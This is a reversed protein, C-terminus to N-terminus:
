TPKVSYNLTRKASGAQVSVRLSLPIGRAAAPWVIFDHFVGKIPWNTLNKNTTGYQAPYTQGTPEAIEVTIKAAAPKGGETVRIRYPWHVGVRPTHTAASLVARLPGAGTGGVRAADAVGPVTSGVVVTAALVVCYRHSMELGGQESVTACMQQRAHSVLEVHSGTLRNRRHTKRTTQRRLLRGRRPTTRRRRRLPRLHQDGERRPRRPLLRDPRRADGLRDRRRR